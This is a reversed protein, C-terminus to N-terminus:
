FNWRLNLCAGDDLVAVGHDPRAPDSAYHRDNGSSNKLTLSLLRLGIGSVIEADEPEHRGSVQAEIQSVEAAASMGASGSAREAADAQVVFAILNLVLLAVFVRIVM